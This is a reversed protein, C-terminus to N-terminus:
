ASPRVPIAPPSNRMEGTESGIQADAYPSIDEMLFDVLRGDRQLIALLQAATGEARDVVPARRATVGTEASPRSSTAHSSFRILASAVDPPIRDHFLIAFFTRFAFRLRAFFPSM